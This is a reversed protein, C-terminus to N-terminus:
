MQTCKALTKEFFDYKEKKNEEDFVFILSQFNNKRKLILNTAQTEDYFKVKM